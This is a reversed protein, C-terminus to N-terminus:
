ITVRILTPAGTERASSVVQGLTEADHVTNSQLGISQAILDITVATSQAIPMNSINRELVVFIVPTSQLVALNLAEFLQGDSLAANGMLCLVPRGSSKALGISQLARAAPAGISPAIKYNSSGNDINLPSAGRLCAVSQGRHGVSVWDRKQMALVASEMFPALKGLGTGGLDALYEPNSAFLEREIEALTM